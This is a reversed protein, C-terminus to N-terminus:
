QNIVRSQQLLEGHEYVSVLYLGATSIPINYKGGGTTQQTAVLQGSSNHILIALPSTITTHLVLSGHIPNQILISAADNAKISAINSTYTKGSITTANVRYWASADAGQYNYQYNGTANPQLNAVASFDRGNVSKEVQMTRITEDGALTWSLQHSGDRKTAQLKGFKVPLVANPDSAQSFGLFVDTSFLATVAGGIEIRIANHPLTTQFYVYGEGGTVLQLLSGGSRSEQRTTGNYTAVTITSLLNVLNSTKVYFGAYYGTPAAGDLEGRLWQVCTLNALVSLRAFDTTSASAINDKDTFGGVCALGYDGTTITQNITTRQQAFSFNAALLLLLAFINKM